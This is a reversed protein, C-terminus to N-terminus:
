IDSIRECPTQTTLIWPLSKAGKKMQEILIIIHRDCPNQIPHNLSFVYFLKAHHRTRLLHGTFM